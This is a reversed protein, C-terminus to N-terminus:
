GRILQRTTSLHVHQARSALDADGIVDRGEELSKSEKELASVEPATNTDDNGIM